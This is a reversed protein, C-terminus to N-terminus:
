DISRIYVHPYMEMTTRYFKYNYSPLTRIYEDYM